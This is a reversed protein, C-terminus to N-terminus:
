EENVTQNPLGAAWGHDWMISWGYVNEPDPEPEPDPLPPDTDPVEPDPNPTPNEPDPTPDVTGGDGPDVPDPNSPNPTPDGPNPYVPPPTVTGGGPQKGPTLPTSPLIVKFGYGQWNYLDDRVANIAMDVQVYAEAELARGAREGLSEAMARTLTWGADETYVTALTVKVMQNGSRRSYGIWIRYQVGPEPSIGSAFHDVANDGQAVRNRHAWTFLTDRGAPAYPDFAEARADVTEYWHQGNALMMGPPYPRKPRYQMQLQKRAVDNPTLAEGYTHPVVCVEAIANDGFLTTGAAHARDFLWVLSKAYHVSPITDASGRGVKIRKGEVSIVKMLETDVLLIDGPAASGIPVGDTDSTNDVEFENTLYSMFGKMQGWPTWPQAGAPTWATTEAPRDYLDFGDTLRDSPRAVFALAQSHSLDRGDRALTLYPAEYLFFDIVPIFKTTQSNAASIQAVQASEMGDSGGSTSEDSQAAQMSQEAVQAQDTSNDGDGNIDSDDSVSQMSFSAVNAMQPPKKHVTFNLTYYMWSNYGDRMSDFFITGNTAETAGAEVQLDQAANGYTYVFTTGVIGTETRVLEGTANFVRMRYTQGPEPGIDGENHEILKDSQIVRDRHTWTFRLYDPVEDTGVDARLDQTEYWRKTGAALTAWQMLGPAYPRIFRHRFDISDIPIDEVPFHGEKLTWPAIKMDVHEGSLYKVWDSGGNDAVWWVIDGGFHRQPITDVSGRGVTLTLTAEDWSELRMMENGVMLQSGVELDEWSWDLSLETLVIKTDLYGISVTMEGLPTFDGGGNETFGATGEPRIFLDFAMSLGTPKEAHARIFGEMAKMAAFEGDPMWRALEAYTAEYVVRRALQPKYDPEIHGPPQVQGFTNLDVGFMDQVCVIKIKGDEQGAEESSGVRVIVTEIGRSQPDRIKFVDAPQARWARRDCTLSFRRVSTSASKLDRKAVILALKANPIGPYDRTDSNIAGQTQILALNHERAQSAKNTIPNNWNVVIENTMNYPSSNTAEDISLLGSDVDFIPLSDADYDDRILKIKYKGTFKDVYVAAGIHDIVTQVFSALTDQRAWRICLGFGEDYAQDAAARWTDELFLDRDRGMGWARNTLAEYIIHVANMAVINRTTGDSNYGTMNIRAKAGYWVGGDWGQMIRRLRFTWSKPYPSMASIMGDFFATAVGRFEPQQGGLMRKLASSVTQTPGGMYIEIPGNIGGEGKHGGFLESKSINFRTNGTVSGKWAERDGVRIECIEDVPGRGMGMHIGMYYEYGVTQKKAKGM